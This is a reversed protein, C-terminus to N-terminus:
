WFRYWKRTKMSAPVPEFDLAHGALAAAPNDIFLPKVTEEGYHAELHEYAERLDPSRKVTDHADSSVFHTLGRELLERASSAARRGFSGLFSGATVQVCCGDQIWTALDDFRGQLHANREPHTIIPVMDADILKFLIQDAGHLVGFDPFEVLLYQQHNITYKRPHAVADEINDFQLHFDCGAHVRIGAEDVSMRRLEEIRQEVLDPDFVFRGNAHPTAVIDTTGCRKAVRLMRLSEDLSKAGDDLGHLIHSHLDIVFRRQLLDPSQAVNQPPFNGTRSLYVEARETVFPQARRLNFFHVLAQAGQL